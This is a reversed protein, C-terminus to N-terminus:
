ARPVKGRNDRPGTELSAFVASLPRERLRPVVESVSAVPARMPLELALRVQPVGAGIAQRRLREFTNSLPALAVAAGQAPAARLTPTPTPMAPSAPLPAAVAVAKQEVGVPLAHDLGAVVRIGAPRPTGFERYQLGDLHLQSVLQSIDNYDKDTSM